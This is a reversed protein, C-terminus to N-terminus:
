RPASAPRTTTARPPSNWVFTIGLSFWGNNQQYAQSALSGVPAEPATWGSLGVEDGRPTRTVFPEIFAPEHRVRIDDRYFDADRPRTAERTAPGQPAIELRPGAQPTTRMEVDTQAAVPGTCALVLVPGIFLANLAGRM